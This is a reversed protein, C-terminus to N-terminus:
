RNKDAALNGQQCRGWECTVLFSPQNACFVGYAEHPWQNRFTYITAQECHNQHTTKEIQYLSRGPESRPDLDGSLAPVRYPETSADPYNKQLFRYAKGHPGFELDNSQDNYFALHKACINERSQQSRKHFGIAREARTQQEALFRLAEPAIDMGKYQSTQGKLDLSYDADAVAVWHWNRGLWQERTTRALDATKGGLRSCDRALSDLRIALGLAKANAETIEQRTPVQPPKNACGGILLAGLLLLGSQKLLHKLLSIHPTM